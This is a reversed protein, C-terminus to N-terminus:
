ITGMKHEINKNRDFAKAKLKLEINKSKCWSIKIM